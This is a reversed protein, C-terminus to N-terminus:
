KILGLIRNAKSTIIDIHSNWSLHHNTLLGLDRFENVLNGGVCIRKLHLQFYFTTKEYYNADVNFDMRNRESWTCLRDLDEQFMLHDNPCSIVSFAKCDDAYMALTNGVIVVEPLDSIFIVFFLPGLISGQPVGSPINLWSSCNGDIVVRQTRNSVYNSCWELLSGSIGFNCLKNLLIKHHM